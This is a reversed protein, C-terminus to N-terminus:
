YFADLVEAYHQLCSLNITTLLTMTGFSFCWSKFVLDPYGDLASKLALVLFIVFLTGLICMIMQDILITTQFTIESLKKIWMFYPLDSEFIRHVYFDDSDFSDTKSIAVM